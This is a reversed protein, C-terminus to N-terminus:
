ESDDLHKVPFCSRSLSQFCGSQVKAEKVEQQNRGSDENGDNVKRFIPASVMREARQQNQGSDENEDNLLPPIEVERLLGEEGAKRFYERQQTYTRGDENDVLIIALQTRARTIM